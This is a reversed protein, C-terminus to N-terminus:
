FEGFLVDPGTPVSVDESSERTIFINSYRELADPADLVLVGRGFEDVDVTGIKVWENVFVDMTVWVAYYEDEAPVPVDRLLIAVTNEQHDILVTGRALPANPSETLTVTRQSDGDLPTLVDVLGGQTEQYIAIDGQQENIQNQMIVTYMAFVVLVITVPIAAAWAVKPLRKAWIKQRKARPDLPKQPPAVWPNLPNASEIADIEQIIRARVRVPVQKPEAFYPLADTVTQYEALERQWEPRRPLNRRIFEMEDPELAGLAYGSLLESIEQTPKDPLHNM